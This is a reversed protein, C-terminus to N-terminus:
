PSIVQLYDNTLITSPLTDDGPLFGINALPLVVDAELSGQVAIPLVEEPCFFAVPSPPMIQCEPEPILPVPASQAIQELQELQDGQTGQIAQTQQLNALQELEFVDVASLTDAFKALGQFFMRWAPTMYGNFFLPENPIKNFVPINYSM